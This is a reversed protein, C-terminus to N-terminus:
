APLIDRAEKRSVGLDESLHFSAKRIARVALLIGAFAAAIGTPGM